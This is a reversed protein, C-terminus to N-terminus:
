TGITLTSINWHGHCRRMQQHWQSRRDRQRLARYWPLQHDKRRDGCSCGVDVPQELMEKM